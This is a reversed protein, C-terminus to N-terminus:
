SSSGPGRPRLTRIRAAPTWLAEARARVLFLDFLLGIRVEVLSDSSVDAPSHLHHLTTLTTRLLDDLSDIILQHREPKMRHQLVDVAEELPLGAAHLCRLVRLQELDHETYRRLWGSGSCLPRPRRGAAVLRATRGDFRYFRVVGYTTQLDLVRDPPPLTGMAEHYAALFQERAAASTFHGVRTADGM